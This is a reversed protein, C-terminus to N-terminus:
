EQSTGSGREVVASLKGVTRMPVTERITAEMVDLTKTDLAIGAEDVTRLNVNPNQTWRRV